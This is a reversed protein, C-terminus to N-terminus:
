AVDVDLPDVLHCISESEVHSGECLVVKRLALGAHTSLSVSMWDGSGWCFSGGFKEITDVRVNAAGHSNRGKTAGEVEEGENVVSRAVTPDEEEFLFGLEEVEEVFPVLKDGCLGSASDFGETGVISALVDALLKGLAEVIKSDVVLLGSGVSWLVVADRFTAIPGEFVDSAAEKLM